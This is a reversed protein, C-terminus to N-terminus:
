KLFHLIDLQLSLFCLTIDHNLFDFALDLTQESTLDSTLGLSWTKLKLSPALISFIHYIFLFSFRM